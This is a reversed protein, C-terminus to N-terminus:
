VVFKYRSSITEAAAPFQLINRGTGNQGLDQRYTCSLGCDILSRKFALAVIYRAWGFQHRKDLDRGRAWARRVVVLQWFYAADSSSNCTLNSCPFNNCHLKISIILERFGILSEPAILIMVAFFIFGEAKKSRTLKSVCNLVFNNYNRVFFYITSM